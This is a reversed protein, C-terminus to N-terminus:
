DLKVKQEFRAEIKNLQFYVNVNIYKEANISM